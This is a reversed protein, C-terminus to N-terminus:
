SVQPLSFHVFRESFTVGGVEHTSLLDRYETHALDM